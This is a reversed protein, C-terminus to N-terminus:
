PKWYGYIKSKNITRTGITCKLDWNSEKLTVMDGSVNSVYAIHNPAMIAAYGKVPSWANCIKKKDAYTNLGRPLTSLFNDRVYPVCQPQCLGFENESQVAAETPEVSDQSTSCSAIILAAVISASYFLRKMFFQKNILGIFSDGCPPRTVM